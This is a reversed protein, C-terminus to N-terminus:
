EKALVIRFGISDRKTDIPVALRASSLLEDANASRWNGGRVTGIMTGKDPAKGNTLVYDTDVWESINGALGYYGKKGPRMAMVGALASFNDEYSPIISQLGQSVSGSADAFNDIGKPPPWEYGWPYVGRIRGNREAPDKGRELPLGVARSWEEDTPLRYRDTKGILGLDRDRKTLWECFGRSETRDVGVVPVAGAKGQESFSMPRRVNAEKAYEMYDRRRTEHACMLIEGLPLFVMGM